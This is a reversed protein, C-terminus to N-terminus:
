KSARIRKRRYLMIASGIMAVLCVSSPEPVATFRLNDLAVYTPTNIFVGSMDTSFFGLSVSRANAISSLNVTKWTNLVFDQSNDAFRYDALNVSVSGILNGAGGPSDFGNLTV